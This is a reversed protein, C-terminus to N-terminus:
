SKATLLALLEKEKAEIQMYWRNDKHWRIIDRLWMTFLNDNPQFLLKPPPPVWGQGGGGVGEFKM